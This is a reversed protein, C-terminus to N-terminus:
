ERVLRVESVGEDFLRCGEKEHGLFRYHGQQSDFSRTLAKGADHFVAGLLLEPSSGAPLAEIVKLTHRYADERHHPGARSSAKSPPSRRSSREWFAEPDSASSSVPRTSSDPPLARDAVGSGPPGRGCGLRNGEGGARRPTDAVEGSGTRAGDPIGDPTELM